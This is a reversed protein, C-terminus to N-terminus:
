RRGRGHFVPLQWESEDVREGRFAPIQWSSNPSPQSHTTQVKDGDPPYHTDSQRIHPHKTSSHSSDDSSPIRTWTNGGRTGIKPSFNGTKTNVYGGGVDHHFTGTKPEIIGGAAPPYYEGTRTNIAGGITRTGESSTIIFQSAVDTGSFAIILSFLGIGVFILKLCGM